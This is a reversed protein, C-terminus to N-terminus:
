GQQPRLHEALRVCPDGRLGVPDVGLDKCHAIARDCIHRQRSLESKSTRKILELGELTALQCETLWALVIALQQAAAQPARDKFLPNAAHPSANEPATSPSISSSTKAQALDARLRENEALLERLDAATLTAERADGGHHVRAIENPDIGHMSNRQALFHQIRALSTSNM